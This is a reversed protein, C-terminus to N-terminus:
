KSEFSSGLHSVLHSRLKPQSIRTLTSKRPHKLNITYTYEKAFANKRRELQMKTPPSIWQGRKKICM